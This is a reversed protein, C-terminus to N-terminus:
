GLRHREDIMERAAERQLETINIGGLIRAVEDIRGVDSLAMVSTEARGDKENKSILMHCDALSAIQASHTVCLVQVGKAIEKLKIGVKRSTKGSVGADVEDFIMTSIGDNASLVCKLSLMIRSLEGGSAIKALPMPPEGPNAAILFEVDDAGDPKLGGAPTVSIEFKVGPMDLYQLVECVEKAAKVACRHRVSSIEGAISRADTELKKAKASLEGIREEAGELKELKDAADDRFKLIGAIDAGYKRKLKNIMDLRGEIRDLRVTPDGEGTDSFSRLTTAIDEIEYRFNELREALGAAEPIVDALQSVAAASKDILTVAGKESAYLARYAFDTQKAIKEANQLRGRESVLEEEEGAKLKAGNIENIQYTLMDRMRMKGAEDSKESELEKETLRLESYIAAYGALKEATEAYADLLRIHSSKQMLMQNDHQGHISILRKGVERLMAQTVTQGNIRASSKGDSSVTRTLLLNGDACEIGYEDLLGLTGSAPAEFLATVSAREEGTRILERPARSGLLLGISDIIISKGAGTEGTLAIFGGSMEIDASRIVAINKIQLSRLM